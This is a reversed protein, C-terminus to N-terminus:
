AERAQAEAQKLDLFRRYTLDFVKTFRLAMEEQAKTLREGGIKFLYGKSFNFSYIVAKKPSAALFAEISFPVDTNNKTFLEQIHGGVWTQHKLTAEEDLSIVNFPEQKKWSTLISRMVETETHPFVFPFPAMKGTYYSAYKEEEDVFAYSVNMSEIGLASLEESVLEAADLLEDTKHMAMARSRVRELAAEIKAERAQAEAQKLDNFRTYSLEFVKAFRIIVEEEQKTLFETAIILLYGASFNACYFIIRDPIQSFIEQAIQRPVEAALFRHHDKNVEDRIELVHLPKKQKWDEYRKNLVDDGGLPFDTFDPILTGDPTTVWVTQKNQEEKYFCYGCLFTNINLTRFEEYLLQAAEALEDSKQMAMTRARVRELALEIQAERTLAEANQLDLFRTYTQDFVKGFRKFIDHAEPVREYTIFLLFGKSFYALHFIQFTPVPFGAAEIDDLTEKVGPLTRLYAYHSKLAKGGVEEVFFSEGREYAELFHKLSPDETVPMKLSPQLVGESSMSLTIAKKDDDWICYGASWTPMGLSQVQLFLLNAAEPLEDSKQMAMTRARVRELALQIQAERAQAEAQKLDNFRTYTLDFVKAFRLLIDFHEESLPELSAVNIGGFNNFSASLLVREPARMGNKVVEPLNALETENFLIDDWSIKNQGNLDYVFKVNQKKWEQVFTVYAPHEHYKIFFNVPASPEESNAMWWRAASTLPEFVWIVCRTLVLDLKTLETFVTGILENLEESTQMAMARSRVRELGLEIQAERSQAEAKKLDNFRTYSSDFVKGFRHLIEFKEGTLAETEVIELGGFNNFSASFVVQKPVKLAKRLADPLNPLEKFFAKEFNKKEPGTLSYAWKPDKAKWAHTISKFFDNYFPKVQYPEPPKNMESSAIWLTDSSLEHDHIWIICSTLAFDLKTLEKFVTSVLEALENSNQMAMARARVRELALEIQAERAQAEAKQLDLFRTYAQEFVKTFRILINNEEDNFAKRSYSNLQIGINGSIGVSVTFLPSDLIFQKREEPIYKYDTHTFLYSFWKNKEKYEYSGAVLEKGKEMAAIVSSFHRASSIPILFRTRYDSTNTSATWSEIVDSGKNFILINATDLGVGLEKLRLFVEEVIGQIEESKHMATAKARVRELALQIEGERVQAEAKRLDLFRKYALDFAAGMKLLISEIEGSPENIFDTILRGNALKVARHWGRKINNVKILETIEDATKKDYQSLWKLTRKLDTSDQECAIIKKRSRWIQSVWLRPDIKNIDFTVDWSYRGTNELDTIDWLRIRGDDQKLCITVATIGDLDLELLENRLTKVVEIIEQSKHMALARVRVKEVAAEIELERNKNELEITRRKIADRLQINEAKIKETNVQEGEETKSDPFSGHQHSVKWKNNKKHFLSSIRAPGYFTWQDDILLFFDSEENVMFGKDAPMVNIKRNRFEAKGTIQKATAKYYKVAEKKNSFVEAAASGIIYCNEDLISVFTRMDGRLYADWITHYAKLVEAELKKTLKM